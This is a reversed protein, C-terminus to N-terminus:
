KRLVYVETNRVGYRNCKANSNFYVDIRKGKIAGGTDCAQCFGYGKVYLWTGLPIVRPDVAVRGVKCPKGNACLGGGSYATARMTYKKKYCLTNKAPDKDAKESKLKKGGIKKYAIVKYYYRKNKRLKKYRHICVRKGKAKTKGIKKYKGNKKKASYVYYGDADKVKSWKIKTKGRSKAKAVVKKVPEPAKVEEEDSAAAGEGNAAKESEAQQEASVTDVPEEAEAKNNSFPIISFVMFAIILYNVIKRRM